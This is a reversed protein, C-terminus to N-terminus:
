PARRKREANINTGSGFQLVAPHDSSRRAKGHPAFFEKAHLAAFEHCVKQRDLGM